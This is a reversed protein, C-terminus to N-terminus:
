GSTGAREDETRKHLFSIHEAVDLYRCIADFVRHESLQIKCGENNWPFM